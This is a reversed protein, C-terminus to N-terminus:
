ASHHHRLAFRLERALQARLHAPVHRGVHACTGYAMLCVLPSAVDPAQVRLADADFEVAVTTPGCRQEVCLRTSCLTLTERDCAHRAYAFLAILLATSDVAAFLTVMPYGLFWFLVGLGAHVFVLMGASIMLQRPTFSCNRKLVWRLTFGDDIGFVQAALAGSTGVEASMGPGQM